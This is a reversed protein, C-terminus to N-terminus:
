AAAGRGSRPQAELARRCPGPHVPTGNLTYRTPEGCIVCAPDGGKYRLLM